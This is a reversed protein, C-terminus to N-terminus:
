RWCLVPVKAQEVIDPWSEGIFFGTLAGKPSAGIAILDASVAKAEDFIVGPADGPVVHVQPEIGRATVINAARRAAGALDTRALAGTVLHVQWGGAAAFDATWEVAHGSDATGDYGVVVTTIPAYDGRTVLVPKTAHRLVRRTTNGILTAASDTQGHAGVVLLDCGEAERALVRAPDGALLDREYRIDATTCAEECAALAQEYSQNLTGRMADEAEAEARTADREIEAVAGQGFAPVVAAAYLTGECLVTLDLATRLAAQSGPSGDLGVMITKM